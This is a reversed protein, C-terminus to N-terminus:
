VPTTHLYVDTRHATTCPPNFTFFTCMLPAGWYSFLQWSMEHGRWRQGGQIRSLFWLFSHIIFLFFFIYLYKQEYHKRTARLLSAGKVLLRSASWSLYWVCWCSVKSHSKGQWHHILDALIIESWHKDNYLYSAFSLQNPGPHTQSQTSPLTSYAALLVHGEGKLSVGVFYGIHSCYM